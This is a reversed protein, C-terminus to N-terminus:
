CEEKREELDYEITNGQSRWKQGYEWLDATLSELGRTSASRILSPDPSALTLPNRPDAGAQLLLKVLITVDQRTGKYACLAEELISYNHLPRASNPDAGKMLLHPITSDVPASNRIALWLPTEGRYDQLNPDAGVKLLANVLINFNRSDTNKVDTLHHLATRGEQDQANVYNANENLALQCIVKELECMWDWSGASTHLPRPFGPRERSGSHSFIKCATALATRGDYCCSRHSLKKQQPFKDHFKEYLRASLIWNGTEQANQILSDGLRYIYAGHHLLELCARTRCLRVAAEVPFFKASSNSGKWHTQLMFPGANPNAGLALLFCVWSDSMTEIATWLLSTGSSTPTNIHGQVALAAVEEWRENDLAEEIATKPPPIEPLSLRSEGLDVNVTQHIATGKGAQKVLSKNLNSELHTEPVAFAATRKTGMLFGQFTELVAQDGVYNQVAPHPLLTRILDMQDDDSITASSIWDTLMEVPESEWTPHPGTLDAGLDLLSTIRDATSPIDISSLSQLYEALADGLWQGRITKLLGLTSVIEDMQRGSLRCDAILNRFLSGHANKVTWLLATFPPKIEGYPPKVAAVGGDLLRWWLRWSDKCDQVKDDFFRTHFLWHNTAYHALCLPDVEEQVGVSQIQSLFHGIDFESHRARKNRWAKIHEVVLSVGPLSQRTSEVVHDLVDQSQINKTVTIRSDFIPLHLYTVCTAGVFNEADEITFHYPITSQSTAPSLLHMIVSHHIFRVKGDEEDLDLLNGGCLSIIQMGDRAM